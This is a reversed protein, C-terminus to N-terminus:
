CYALKYAKIKNYKPNLKDILYYEIDKCDAHYNKFIEFSNESLIKINYMEDTFIKTNKSNGTVHSYIRESIYNTYGIYM